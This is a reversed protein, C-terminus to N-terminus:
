VDSDLVDDACRENYCWATLQNPIAVASATPTAQPEDDPVPELGPLEDEDDTDVLMEAVQEHPPNEQILETLLNLQLGFEGLDLKEWVFAQDMQDPQKKM